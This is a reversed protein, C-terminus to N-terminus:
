RVCRAPVGVLLAHDGFKGKVVAGAAVVSNRGVQAGGLIKAGQGIWAGAQIEIEGSREYPQHMVPMDARAHGHDGSALLSFPAILVRSGIAVKSYALIHTHANIRSGAGISIGEGAQHCQLYVGDDIQCDDGIAIKEPCSIRVSAPIVRRRFDRGWRVNRGYHAFRRRYHRHYFLWFALRDFILLLKIM